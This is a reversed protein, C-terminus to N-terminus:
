HAQNASLTVTFTCTQNEVSTDSVSSPMSIVVNGTGTQFSGSVQLTGAPTTTTVTLDSQLTTNGGTWAQTSNVTVPLTGTNEVEFPVTLNMGPYAGTVAVDMVTYGNGQVPYTVVATAYPDTPTTTSVFQAAVTGATVTGNISLSQSWYAYAAGVLGLALVAALVIFGIKKM